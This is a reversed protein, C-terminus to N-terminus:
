QYVAKDEARVRDIASVSMGEDDCHCEDYVADMLATLARELEQEAPTM